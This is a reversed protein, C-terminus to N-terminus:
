RRLPPLGSGPKKTKDYQKKVIDGAVERAGLGFALALALCLAGFVLAFSILVFTSAVDLQQVAMTIAFVLIAIRAAGGIWGKSADDETARNAILARVYNGLAFGVAVIAVAVVVKLLMYELFTQVMAAWASFSLTQLVEVTAVLVIAVQAVLGVFESPTDVFRSKEGEGPTLREFDVGLKKLVGDFGLGALLGTVLSRALKGVVVGIALILAAVVLSPLLGWFQDITHAVPRSLAELGLRDLAAIGAHLLVFVMLALGLVDSLKRKAFLGELKVRAPLTDVGVSATLNTVVTRALRGLIYGGLLMLGAVALMPVAEIISTLMGKLPTAVVDIKLAEFAGALGVLMALWFVLTGASESFKARPAGEAAEAAFRADMGGLAKGVIKKLLLGVVYFVLVILAAKGVLPLAGVITQVFARLPGATDGLGAADLAGAIALLMVVYFTTRGAIREVQDDKGDKSKFLHDLGVATFLKNDLETKKLLAYIVKELSRAVLWGVFLVAVAIGVRRLTELLGSDYFFAKVSDWGGAFAPLPLLVALVAIWPLVRRTSDRHLM